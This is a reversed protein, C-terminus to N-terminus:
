QQYAPNDMNITINEGVKFKLKKKDKPVLFGAYGQLKDGSNIILSDISEYSDRGTVTYCFMCKEIDAKEVNYDDATLSVNVDSFTHLNDDSINEIVFHFAIKQYGDKTNYYEPFNDSKYEYFDYNDLKVSLIDTTALENYNVNVKKNTDKESFPDSSEIYSIGKYISFCVFGFIFIIIIFAIIFTRSMNKQLKKSREANIRVKEDHELKKQKKYERITKSCDAGCSPCKYDNESINKKCYECILEKDEM